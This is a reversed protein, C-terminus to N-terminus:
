MLGIKSQVKFLKKRAIMRAKNAGETFIEELKGSNIVEHYKAQIEELTACVVDAVAKKFTGYNAGVFEEECEEISINKLSCYIEILNSIGPKNEEDYKVLMDSLRDTTQECAGKSRRSLLFNRFSENRYVKEIYNALDQPDIVKYEVGKFERIEM